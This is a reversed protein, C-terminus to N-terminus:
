PLGNLAVLVPRNKMEIYNMIDFREGPAIDNLSSLFLGRKEQQNKSLVKIDTIEIGMYYQYIEFKLNELRYRIVAQPVLFYDSAWTIFNEVDARQPSEHLHEKILPIFIKYPVYFEAAGENAQWELFPDQLASVRDFCNFTSRNLKRHLSLHMMEHGCDFNQEDECRNSNLLIIDPEAVMNLRCQYTGYGLFRKIRIVDNYLEEKNSAGM